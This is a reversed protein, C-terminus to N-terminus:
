SFLAAHAIPWDNVYVLYVRTHTRVRRVHTLFGIEHLCFAIEHLHFAIEHLYFAIEHLHFRPTHRRFLTLYHKARARILTNKCMKVDKEARFGSIIVRNKCTYSNHCAASVGRFAVQCM